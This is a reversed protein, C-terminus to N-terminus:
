FFEALGSQEEGAADDDDDAEEILEGSLGGTPASESVLEERIEIAEAVIAQVKNTSAGSGTIFAVQEEDFEFHATMAVTLERPKCHHTMRSLFPLVDERATAMSVGAVEAIRRAIEDRQQRRSKSSGLKRWYSPPGYRTWGGKENERSAAVGAAINDTAYRWYTYNQSARVRGLWRDAAALRDYAKALERANYDKLVNDEVWALLTDPTEDVAYAMSLSRFLNRSAPM